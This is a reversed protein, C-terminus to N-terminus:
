AALKALAVRADVSRALKDLSRRLHKRFHFSPRVNATGIRARAAFISAYTRTCFHLHCRGFVLTLSARAITPIAFRNGLATSLQKSEM